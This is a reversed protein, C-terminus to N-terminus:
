ILSSNYGDAGEDEAAGTAPLAVEGFTQGGRDSPLTYEIHCRRQHSVVFVEPSADPEV